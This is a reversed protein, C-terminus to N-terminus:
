EQSVIAHRGGKKARKEKCLFNIKGILGQMNMDALHRLKRAQNHGVMLIVRQEGGRAHKTFAINMKPIGKMKIQMARLLANTKKSRALVGPLRHKLYHKKTHLIQRATNSISSAFMVMKKYKRELQVLRRELDKEQTNTM